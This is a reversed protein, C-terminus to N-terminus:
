LREDIGKVPVWVYDTFLHEEDSHISMVRMRDSSTAVKLWNPGLDLEVFHIPFM